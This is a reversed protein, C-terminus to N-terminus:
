FREGESPCLSRLVGELPQGLRTVAPPLAALPGPSTTPLFALRPGHHAAHRSPHLLPATFSRLSKFVNFLPRQFIHISTISTKINMRSPGLNDAADPPEGNIAAISERGPPQTAALHVCFSPLFFGFRKRLAFTTM